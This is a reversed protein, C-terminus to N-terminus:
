LRAIDQQIRALIKDLPTQGSYYLSATKLYEAEFTKRINEELTFAGSEAVNQNMSKFRKKKHELYEPTGIFQQVEGVDLLQHIDYYHRLFNPSLKGTQKFQGYKKVV